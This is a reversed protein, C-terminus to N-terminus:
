FVVAVGHSQANQVDSFEKWGVQTAHFDKQGIQDVLLSALTNVGVRQHMAVRKGTVRLPHLAHRHLEVQDVRGHRQTEPLGQTAGYFAHFWVYQVQM